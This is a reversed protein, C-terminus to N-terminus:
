EPRDGEEYLDDAIVSMIEGKAVKNRRRIFKLILDRYTYSNEISVYQDLYSPRDCLLTESLIINDNDYVTDYSNLTWTDTNVNCVYCNYKVHIGDIIDLKKHRRNIIITNNKMVLIPKNTNFNKDIFIVRTGYTNDYKEQFKKSIIDKIKEVIIRHDNADPHCDNILLKYYKANYMCMSNMIAEAAIEAEKKRGDSTDYKLYNRVYISGLEKCIKCEKDDFFIIGIRFCKM